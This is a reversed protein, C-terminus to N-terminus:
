RVWLKPSFPCRYAGFPSEVCIYYCTTHWIIEEFIEIIKRRASPSLVTPETTITLKSVLRAAMSVYKVCDM